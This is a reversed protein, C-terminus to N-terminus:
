PAWTVAVAVGVLPFPKTLKLSVVVEPVLALLVLGRITVKFPGTDTVPFKPTTYVIETLSPLLVTAGPPV